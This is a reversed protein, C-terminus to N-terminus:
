IEGAALLKPSCAIRIRRHPVPLIVELLVPTLVNGARKARKMRERRLIGEVNRSSRRNIDLTDSCSVPSQDFTTTTTAARGSVALLWCRGQKSTARLQAQANPMLYADNYMKSGFPTM